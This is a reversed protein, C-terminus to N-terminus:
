PIAPCGRFCSTHSWVDQYRKGPEEMLWGDFGDPMGEGQFSEASGTQLTYSFYLKNGDCYSQHVTLDFSREYQRNLLRQYLTEAEQHMPADPATLSTQFDVNEATEELRALRNASYAQDSQQGLTGFVGLAAALAAGMMALTLLLACILAASLRRPKATKGGEIRNWVERQCHPPFTEGGLADRRAKRLKEETM